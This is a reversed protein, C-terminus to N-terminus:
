DAAAPAPLSLSVKLGRGGGGQGLALTAGHLTAIDRVIALGLGTGGPNAEMGAASRYFPM